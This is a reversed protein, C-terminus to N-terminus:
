RRPRLRPDTNRPPPPAIVEDDPPPAEGANGAGLRSRVGYDEMMHHLTQSFEDVLRHLRQGQQRGGRHFHDHHHGHDPTWRAIDEEIHHFLDDMEHLDRAIHDEGGRQNRHYRDHVLEHIHKADQLVKYMERYTERYGRNGQYNHYMELCIANAQRELQVALEDLHDRAGFTYVQVRPAQGARPPVQFQFRIQALAPSAGLVTLAAVLMLAATRAQPKFSPTRTM